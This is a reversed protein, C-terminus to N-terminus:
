KQKVFNTVSDNAHAKILKMVNTDNKYKTKLARLQKKAAGCYKDISQEIERKEAKSLDPDWEGAQSECEDANSIFEDVDAHGTTTTQALSYISASLLFALILIKNKM